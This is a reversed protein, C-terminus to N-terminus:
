RIRRSGARTARRSGARSPPTGVGPEPVRDRGRGRLHARRGHPLPRRGRHPRARRGGARGERPSTPRRARVHRGLLLRRRCRDAQRERAAHDDRRRNSSRPSSRASGSSSASIACTTAAAGRHDRSRLLRADDGPRRRGDGRKRAGRVDVRVRHRDRRRRRRRGLRPIRRIRLIGDSDFVTESTSTSTRRIRAPTSGPALVIKEATLRREAGSGDDVEMVHEDVFFATGDVLSVRNRVLQDRVVGREREVVQRTRTRLDDVSIQDRLRYGRGYIERQNLGTLYVIAERITKSPITGSNVSVGGLTPAREVLAVRRRLKAAQIAAKQGAPGSGIVLVDYDFSM